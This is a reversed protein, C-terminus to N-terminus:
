KLAHRALQIATMVEATYGQKQILNNELAELVAMDVADQWLWLERHAEPMDFWQAISWGM